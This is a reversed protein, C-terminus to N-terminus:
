WLFGDPSPIKFAQDVTAYMLKKVGEIGSAYKADKVAQKWCQWEVDCGIIVDVWIEDAEQGQRHTRGLLQEWVTGTPPPSIVLNENWAQLNRGESNSAVSLVVSGEKPDMTEVARNLKDRGMEHFYPLGLKEELRHGLAVESVWILGSHKKAWEGVRDILCDDEWRPVVSWRHEDKVEHWREYLDHAAAGLKKQKAAKVILAESELGPIHEELVRRVTKKWSSRLELWERPPKPEWDYWFGSTLTRMIRWKAQLASAERGEEVYVDGNPLVGNRLQASLEKIRDNYGEELHLAINLSASVSQGSTAVVGSTEQIRRRLGSRVGEIGRMKEDPSCFAVLAGPSTQVRQEFTKIEDVASAWSELEALPQPLPCCTPLAWRLVHSFDLLSRKTITGSMAVVRTEPFTKMWAAVKRTVAASRNKLKHVEDFILLDPQLTQLYKTGGERSLKEYSLIEIRPHSRWHQELAAFERITKDRLRAPVILVPRKAELVVPTLFSILTKGEGVPIPGFLGGFDHAEQLAVAQVPRLRQRGHPLKCYNTVAETLEELGEKEQWVRRPLDLIRHLEPTEPVGNRKFMKGTLKQMRAVSGPSFM